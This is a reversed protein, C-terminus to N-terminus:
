FFRAEVPGILPADAVTTPTVPPVVAQAVKPKEVKPAEVPSTAPAVDLNELEEANKRGQLTSLKDLLGSMAVKAKPAVKETILHIATGQLVGVGLKKFFDGVTSMKSKNQTM